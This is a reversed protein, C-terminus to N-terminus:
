SCHSGAQSVYRHVSPIHKRRILVRLEETNSEVSSAEQVDVQIAGTRVMFNKVAECEKDNDPNYVFFRVRKRVSREPRQGLQDGPLFGYGIFM